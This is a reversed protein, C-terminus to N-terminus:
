ADAGGGTARGASEAGPQGGELLPELTDWALGFTVDLDARRVYVRQQGAEGYQAGVLLVREEPQDQHRLRLVVRARPRRLGTDAAPQGFAIADVARAVALRSLFTEVSSPSLAGPNASRWENGEKDVEVAPAPGQEFVLGMVHEEEVAFLNKDALPRELTEVLEPSLVFIAEDAGALQGYYGGDASAGISLDVVTSEEDDAQWSLRARLRPRAVGHSAAPRSSVFREVELEALRRVVDRLVVEDAAFAVPETLRWAGDQREVVQRGRPGDIELRQAGDPEHSLLRRQRFRAPDGALAEMVSPPVVLAVAENGRRAALQGQRLRLFLVEESEEEDRPYLRLTLDAAPEDGDLGAAQAAVVETAENENLTRLLAEVAQDDAAPGPEDDTGGLRWTGEHRWLVTADQPGWQVRGLEDAGRQTLRRDQLQDASLLLAEVADNSACSVTGSGGLSLYREGGHGECGSGFRLSFPQEQEVLRLTLQEAENLGYQAEAEATVDDAVFRTVRLSELNRLLDSVAREDARMELPTTLNWRSEGNRQAHFRGAIRLATVQDAEFRLVRRDRWDNAEKTIEDVFDRDVVYVRDSEDSRAVYIAEGPADAGVKLTVEQGRLRVSVQGRPELLGFRAQAVADKEEILRRKELWDLASLLGDVAEADAEIERPHRLMWQGVAGLAPEGEEPLRELEVRDDGAGLVLRDVRDRDFSPLVRDSREELDDTSPQHREFFYIFLALASAVVALVVSTNTKM